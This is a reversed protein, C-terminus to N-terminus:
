FLLLPGVALRSGPKEAISNNEVSWLIASFLSVPKEAIYDNEVSWLIASFRPRAVSLRAVHVHGDVASRKANVLYYSNRLTAGLRNKMM